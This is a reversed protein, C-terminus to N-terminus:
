ANKINKSLHKKLNRQQQVIDIDRNISIYRESIKCHEVRGLDNAKEGFSVNINEHM